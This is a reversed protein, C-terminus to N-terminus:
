IKELTVFSWQIGKFSNWCNTDESPWTWWKWKVWPGAISVSNKPKIWHWWVFIPITDNLWKSLLWRRDSHGRPSLCSFTSIRGSTRQGEYIAAKRHVSIAIWALAIGTVPWSPGYPQSVDLSGYKRSVRSVSPPLITLRGKGGHFNRTTRETLRQTSGLVRTRSSLILYISFFFSIPIRVRSRGAQLM